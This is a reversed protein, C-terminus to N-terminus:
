SWAEGLKALGELVQVAVPLSPNLARAHPFECLDSRPLLPVRRVSHPVTPLAAPPPAVTVQTAWVVPVHAAECLWLVEEQIEAACVAGVANM